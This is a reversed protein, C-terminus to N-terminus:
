QCFCLSFQLTEWVVINFFAAQELPLTVGVTGLGWFIREFWVLLSSHLWVYLLSKVHVHHEEQIKVNSMAQRLKSFKIFLHYSVTNMIWALDCGQLHMTFSFSWIEIYNLRSGVKMSFFQTLLRGLLFTVVFFPWFPM